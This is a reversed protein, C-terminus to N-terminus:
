YANEAALVSLTAFNNFTVMLLRQSTQLLLRRISGFAREKRIDLGYSM